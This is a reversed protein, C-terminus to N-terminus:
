IARCQDEIVLGVAIEVAVVHGGVFNEYPVTVLLRDARRKMAAMTVLMDGAAPPASTSTLLVGATAVGRGSRSSVM